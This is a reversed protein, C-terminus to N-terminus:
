KASIQWTKHEEPPVHEIKRNHELRAGTQLCFAGSSSEPFIGKSVSSFRPKERPYVWHFVRGVPDSKAKLKFLPKGDLRGCRGVLWNCFM